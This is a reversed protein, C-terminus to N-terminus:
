AGHPTSTNCETANQKMQQMLSTSWRGVTVIALPTRIM